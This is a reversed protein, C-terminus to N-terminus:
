ARLPVRSRSVSVHPGPSCRAVLFPPARELLLGPLGAAIGPLLLYRPPRAFTARGCIRESSEKADEIDLTSMESPAIAPVTWQVHAYLNAPLLFSAPAIQSCSPNKSNRESRGHREKRFLMRNFRQICLRDSTTETFVPCIRWIYFITSRHKRMRPYRCRRRFPQM